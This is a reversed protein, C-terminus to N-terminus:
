LNNHGKLMLRIVFIIESITSFIYIFHPDVTELISIKM